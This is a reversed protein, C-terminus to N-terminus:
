LNHKESEMAQALEEETFVQHEPNSKISPVDDSANPFLEAM